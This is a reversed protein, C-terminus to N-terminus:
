DGLEENAAQIWGEDKVVSKYKEFNERAKEEDGLKEYVLAMNYYAKSYGNDVQLVEKFRQLATDYQRQHFRVVGLLNLYPALMRFQPPVSDLIELAADPKDRLIAIEARIRFNDFSDDGNALAKTALHEARALAYEKKLKDIDLRNIERPRKESMAYGQDIYREAQDFKENVISNEIVLRIHSINAVGDAMAQEAVRLALEDEPRSAPSADMLFLPEPAYAGALQPMSRYTRINEELLRSALNLRYGTQYYDYSWFGAIILFLAAFAFPLRTPSFMPMLAKQVKELLSFSTQYDPVLDKRKDAFMEIVGASLSLDSFDASTELVAADVPGFSGEFVRSLAECSEPFSRLQALLAGAQVSTIDHCYYDEIIQSIQAESFHTTPEGIYTNASLAKLDVLSQALQRCWEEDQILGSLDDISPVDRDLIHRIIAGTRAYPDRHKVNEAM